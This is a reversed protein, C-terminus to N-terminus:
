LFKPPQEDLPAVLQTAPHILHAEEILAHCMQGSLEIATRRMSSEDVLSLLVLM